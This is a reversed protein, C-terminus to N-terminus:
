RSEELVTNVAREIRHQLQERGIEAIRRYSANMILHHLMEDDTLEPATMPKGGIRLGAFFSAIAIAATIIIWFDPMENRREAVAVAVIIVGILIGYLSALANASTTRKNPLRNRAM